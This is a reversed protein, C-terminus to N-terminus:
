FDTGMYIPIRYDTNIIKEEYSYFYVPDNDIEEKKNRQYIASDSIRLFGVKEYISKITEGCNLIIGKINKNEKNHRIVYNILEIGLGINRKKESVNVLGLINVRIRKDLILVEREQVACYAVLEGDIYGCYHLDIIPLQYIGFSEKVLGLVSLLLKSDLEKNIQIEM